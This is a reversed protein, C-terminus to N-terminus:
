PTSSRIRPKFKKLPIIFNWAICFKETLKEYFDNPNFDQTSYLRSFDIKSVIELLKECKFDKWFRTEIFKNDINHKKSQFNLKRSVFIM